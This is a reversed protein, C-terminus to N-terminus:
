YLLRLKSSERESGVVRMREALQSQMGGVRRDSGPEAPPWLAGHVPLPLIGEDKLVPFLSAGFPFPGYSVPRVRLKYLVMEFLDPIPEPSAKITLTKFGIIVPSSPEAQLSFDRILESSPCRDLSARDPKNKLVITLQVTRTPCEENSNNNERSQNKKKKKSPLIIIATLRTPQASKPQIITPM